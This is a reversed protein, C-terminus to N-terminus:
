ALATRSHLIAEGDRVLAVWVVVVDCWKVEACEASSVVTGADQRYLLGLITVERLGPGDLNARRIPTLTPTSTIPESSDLPWCHIAHSKIPGQVRLVPM